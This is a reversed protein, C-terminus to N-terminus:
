VVAAAAALLLGEIHAGRLSEAHFTYYSTATALGINSVNFLVHRLQPCERTQWFSQVLTATCALFLTEPLRWNLIGVFIFTFFLSIAATGGPLGIKLRSAAIALGLYCLYPTLNVENWRYLEGALVCCGAVIVFGLYLRAMWNMKDKPTAM